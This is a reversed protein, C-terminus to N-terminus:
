RPRITVPVIAVGGTRPIRIVEVRMSSTAGSSNGGLPLLPGACHLAGEQQVAVQALPVEEDLANRGVVAVVVGNLCALRLPDRLREPRGQGAGLDV